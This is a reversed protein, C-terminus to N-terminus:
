RGFDDQIRVIDDEDSLNDPDSHIWIEAIVGWNDLGVLRHREEQSLKVVDGKKLLFTEKEEDTDSRIIAVQGDVLKWLESRRYHYQWSLKKGPQVLLIKPSLKEEILEEHKFGPFFYHLFKHAQKQDIVFFGGWPRDTDAFEIKFGEKLLIREIDSFIKDKQM